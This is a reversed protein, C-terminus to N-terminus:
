KGFKRVRGEFEELLEDVDNENMDPWLKDLFFLESYASEYLMFNSLRMEGGTRVVMDLPPLGASGLRKEFTDELFEGHDYVIKAAHLIDTRGGYAFAINLTMGDNDRTREEVSEISDVLDDPLLSFDSMYRIKFNGDYTLNFKKVVSFIAEIEETPRAVNETSFAYVSIAEVGKEECRKAVKRLAILGQAYGQTRSLGHATAWRGNGDMIFGIHRAKM